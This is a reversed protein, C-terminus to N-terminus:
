EVGMEAKCLLGYYEKRDILTVSNIRCKIINSLFEIKGDLSLVEVKRLKGGINVEAINEFEKEEKAISPTLLYDEVDDYTRLIARKNKIDYVLSTFM